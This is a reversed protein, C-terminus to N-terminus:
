SDITSAQKHKEVMGLIAAHIHNGEHRAIHELAKIPLSALYDLNLEIKISNHEYTIEAIQNNIFDVM